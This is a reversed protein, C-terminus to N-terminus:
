WSHRVSNRHWRAQAHRRSLRSSPARPSPPKGIAISASLPKRSGTQQITTLPDWRPSAHKATPAAGIVFYAKTSTFSVRTAAATGDIDEALHDGAAPNKRSANHGFPAPAADTGLHLQMRSRGASRGLNIV